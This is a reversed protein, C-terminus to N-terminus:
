VALQASQLWSSIKDAIEERAKQLSLPDTPRSPGMNACHATGNIFIAIESRSENKLVSLAHWPDVDGNVFIIRSSKPHDAGYFENTFQVSQRVSTTPIQFVQTCLDLQSNLTLLPSFPCSSVECTQYYGFETCTQYYWQREGVGTPSLETNRLDSLTEEHSNEVCKLGIFEIHMSNVIRLGEYASKASIMSQCIKRVDCGASEMNYQVAGMFIDALNSVFETYDDPGHLPACSFFDKELQTVNGTQLVSDVVRFSERVRDLCKASGGIVADSLSQAVVKNYDTFDLEARVPASSAVAAYVLHPFKLRFWASLSGPYSGGFCIWTNNRTLNYKQSIFLHFSALDALAQQSSLFRIAELTLGDPNISAGYYRHELSVLLARHKQALEVHEGALVSYESESSEGGIYLFVPGGPRQWFEENVWYRQKYTANNRRNFHDLPQTLFGEVPPVYSPAGKPLGIRSYFSKFNQIERLQHIKKRIQRQNWAGDAEGLLPLLILLFLWLSTM